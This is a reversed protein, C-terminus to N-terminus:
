ASRTDAKQKILLRSNAIALNSAKGMFWPSNLKVVVKIIRSKHDVGRRTTCDSLSKQVCYKSM